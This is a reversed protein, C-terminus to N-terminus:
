EPKGMVMIHTKLFKRTRRYLMGEKIEWMSIVPVVKMALLYLFIAGGIAGVVMFVDAFGPLVPKVVELLPKPHVDGLAEPRADAISFSAVYIRIKDFLAGFLILVSVIAPGVMSKRVFNWMLILFPVLFCLFFALLFPVRYAEFMFTRLIHQEVPQRGYWYIIFGSFWFYVWLLSLPLLLKSAGWFQDRHIYDKVGGLKYLLFLALVTSAVASQLGSLAQFAPFIADKWGPVMAEAFDSAIITHVFVLFLFYMAGMAILAARHVAWQRDTGKWNIFILRDLLRKRAGTAHQRSAALDPLSAVYLIALGLLALFAVALMDTVHPTASWGFWITRRGKAAPLMLILPIFMLTALIGVVAFLESMRALPRRWHSRVMRQTISFLPASMATTLLFAFAAMLYGWPTYTDFGDKAARIVFGVIGLVLLGGFILLALKYRPGISYTEKLIDRTVEENTKEIVQPHVHVNSM